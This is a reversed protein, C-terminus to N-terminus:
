HPTVFYKISPLTENPYNISYWNKFINYLHTTSVKGNKKNKTKSNLFNLYMIDYEDDDYQM